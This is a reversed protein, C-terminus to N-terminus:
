SLFYLLYDLLTSNQTLGTNYQEADDTSFEELSSGRVDGAWDDGNDHFIRNYQIRLHRGHSPM